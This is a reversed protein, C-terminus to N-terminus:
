QFIARTKLAKVSTIMRSSKLVHRSLSRLLNISLSIALFFFGGGTGGFSKRFLPFVAVNVEAVALDEGVRTEPSLGLVLGRDATLCFSALAGTWRDLDIRSAKPRMPM